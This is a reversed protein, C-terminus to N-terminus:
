PATKEELLYAPVEPTPVTPDLAPEVVPLDVEGPASAGDAGAPCPPCPTRRLPLAQPAFRRSFQPLEREEATAGRLIGDLHRMASAIDRFDADQGCGRVQWVSQGALAKQACRLTMEQVALMVSVEGEPLHLVLRRGDEEMVCNERGPTLRLLDAVAARTVAMHEESSMHRKDDAIRREEGAIRERMRETSQELSGIGRRMIRFSIMLGVLIVFAAVALVTM